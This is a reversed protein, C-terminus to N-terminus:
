FTLVVRTLTGERMEAIGENIETFPRVKGVMLALDLRGQERLAVLKPFDTAPNASGYISGTLVKETLLMIPPIQLVDSFAALGVVVARGGPRIMNFADMMTESRGVCEIAADVGGGSAEIVGAVAGEPDLAETAGADLAAQRRQEIPDIAIIRGAGVIRAGQIAALGVGGCGIVAVSEGWRVNATKTAAGFGTMVGCGILCSEAAPVEGSVAIAMSAPVVIHQAFAGLAMFRDLPNGQWSMPGSGATSMRLGQCLQVDGRICPPCQGCAPTWSLIVNDGEVLNAVGEGLADVVGAAEHGLVAPFVVSEAGDIAHLDSRCIGCAEVRVRVEGLGPEALDVEEIRLPKDASEVIAATTKM